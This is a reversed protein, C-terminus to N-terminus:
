LGIQARGQATDNSTVPHTDGFGKASIINPNVGQSPPFWVGNLFQFNASEKSSPLTM